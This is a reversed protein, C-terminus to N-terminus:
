KVLGKLLERIEKLGSKIETIDKELFTIKEANLKRKKYAELASKDKNLLIGEQIKYFGALETKQTM